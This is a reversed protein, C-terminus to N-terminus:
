HVNLYCGPQFDVCLLKAHGFPYQPSLKPTPTFGQTQWPSTQIRGKARTSQPPHLPLFGWPWPQTKTNDGGSSHEFLHPLLLILSKLLSNQTIIWSWPDPLPCSKGVKCKKCVLAASPLEPPQAHEPIDKSDGLFGLTVGCQLFVLPRSMPLM